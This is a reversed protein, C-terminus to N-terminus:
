EDDKGFIAEQEKPTMGTMMFERETATLFSFAQQIMQGSEYAKFAKQMKSYPHNVVMTKGLCHLTTSTPSTQIIKNCQMM